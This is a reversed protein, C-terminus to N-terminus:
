RFHQAAHRYNSYLAIGFELFRGKLRVSYLYLISYFLVHRIFPIKVLPSIRSHTTNSSFANSSTAKRRVPLEVFVKSSIDCYGFHREVFHRAGDTGVVGKVNTITSVQYSASHKAIRQLHAHLKLNEPTMIKDFNCGMKLNQRNEVKQVM